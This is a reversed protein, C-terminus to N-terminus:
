ESTALKGIKVTDWCSREIDTKRMVGGGLCVVPSPLDIAGQAAPKSGEFNGFKPSFPSKMLGWFPSCRIYTITYTYLMIGMSDIQDVFPHVNPSSGRADAVPRAQGALCIM